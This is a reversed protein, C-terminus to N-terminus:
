DETYNRFAITPRNLASCGWGFHTLGSALYNEYWRIAAGCTCNFPDHPDPAHKPM